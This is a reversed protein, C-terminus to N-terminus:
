KMVLFIDKLDLNVQNQRLFINFIEYYANRKLRTYQTYQELELTRKWCIISILSYETSFPLLRYNVRFELTAKMYDIM